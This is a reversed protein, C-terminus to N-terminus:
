KPQRRSRALRMLRRKLVLLLVKMVRRKPPKLRSLSRRKRNKMKAPLIKLLKRPRKLRLLQRKRPVLRRMSSRRLM